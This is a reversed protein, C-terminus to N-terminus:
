TDSYTRSNLIASIGLVHGLAVHLASHCGLLGDWLFGCGKRHLSIIFVHHLKILASHTYLSRLLRLCRRRLRIHGSICSSLPEEGLAEFGRVLAGGLMATEARFIGDVTICGLTLIVSCM